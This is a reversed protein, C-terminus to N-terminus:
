VECILLNKFDHKSNECYQYADEITRAATKCQLQKEGTDLFVFYNENADLKCYKAVKHGFLVKHALEGFHRHCDSGTLHITSIQARM